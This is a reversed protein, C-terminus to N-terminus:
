HLWAFSFLSFLIYAFVVGILVIFGLDLFQDFKSQDVKLNMKLYSGGVGIKAGGGCRQLM